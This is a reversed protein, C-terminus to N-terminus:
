PTITAGRLRVTFQGGRPTTEVVLEGGMAQVAAAAIALGLGFGQGDATGRYFPELVREAHEVPIGPGADSVEIAITADEDRAVITVKGDGHRLGNDVLAALTEHLLDREALVALSVDCVVSPRPNTEAALTELLPQLEVFELRTTEGAEIRALVLLGRTLRALRDAHTRLHRLFRDRTEPEHKGGSELVDIATTIATLPTRLQHAANRVFERKRQEENWESSIDEIQLIAPSEGHTPTGSVRLTRGDSLELARAPLPVRLVALREALTRIMGDASEAPLMSGIRITGPALLTRAPANALLVCGKRDLAVIAQPLRLLFGELDFKPEAPRAFSPEDGDRQLVAAVYRHGDDSVVRLAVDLEAAGDELRVTVTEPRQTLTNLATRYAGRDPLAVLAAFPKGRLFDRPRGLRAAAATNLDIIKGDADLAILEDSSADLLELLVAPPVPERM